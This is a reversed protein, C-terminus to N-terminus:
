LGVQEGIYAVMEQAVDETAAMLGLKRIDFIEFRHPEKSALRLYVEQVTKLLEAKEWKSRRREPDRRIADKPDDVLLYTKGPSVLLGEERFSQDLESLWRIARSLSGFHPVLRPAQYAIWSDTFRDAIVVRGSRLAPLIRRAVNDVRATFFLLAEASASVRTPRDFVQAKLDTWPRLNPPDRSLLPELGLNHLEVGVKHVVWTKGTFDIGEISVFVDDADEM